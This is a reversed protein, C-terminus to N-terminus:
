MTTKKLIVDIEIGTILFVICFSIDVGEVCMYPVEKVLDIKM